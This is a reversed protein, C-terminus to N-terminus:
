LFIFHLMSNCPVHISSSYIHQLFDALLSLSSDTRYITFLAYYSFLLNCFFVFSSFQGSSILQHYWPFSLICLLSPSEWFPNQSFSPRFYHSQHPLHSQITTHISGGQNNYILTGLNYIFTYNPASLYYLLDLHQKGQVFSVWTEDRFDQACLWSFPGWYTQSQGQFMLFPFISWHEITLNVFYYCYAFYM